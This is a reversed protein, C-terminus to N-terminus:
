SENIWTRDEMALDDFKVTGAYYGIMTNDYKIKHSIQHLSAYFQYITINRVTDYTYPFQETNVLAVILTELPSKHEGQKKRKLRAQAKRAREIMYKKAEENAPRKDERTMCLMKRIFKCIQDHIGRDIVTGSEQDVLVVRNNEENVAAEFKTLDLDGFVLSADLTRLRGFLLCFLDFDTLKTYDIGADDLQVMMTYPTAVISCVLEYYAEDNDIIEGVTPIKISIHENIDYHDAYLLSAM